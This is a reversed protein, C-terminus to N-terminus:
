CEIKLYYSASNPSVRQFWKGVAASYFALFANLPQANKICVKEDFPVMSPSVREDITVSDDSSWGGETPWLRGVLEGDVHFTFGRATWTTKYTHFDRTWTTSVRTKRVLNEQFDIASGNGLGFELLKGGLEKFPNGVPLLVANGRARGLDVRANAFRPDYSKYLPELWM